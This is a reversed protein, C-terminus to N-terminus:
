IVNFYDRTKMGTAKLVIALEFGGDESSFFEVDGRLSKVRQRIGALGMSKSQISGKKLGVGDDRYNLTVMDGDNKLDFEVVSAESHKFANNLLEQVIRYVALSQEHELEIRFERADFEVKFLVRKRYYDMLSVLAEVVGTEKLFPPRLFTCTERIQDVVEELGDRVEELESRMEPTIDEELLNEVKRYWVLQEQLASDHLDSSLRAREKEALNFLLRLMWFPTESNQYISQEFEETVGEILRFNEYVISAYHVMTKLWRIEDKNFTTHNVKEDVWLVYISDSQEVMIFALGNGVRFYDLAKHGAGKNLLHSRIMEGPYGEDGSELRLESHSKNLELIAVGHSPMGNRVEEVLRDDLEDRRLISSLDRTFRDLSIQFNAKDGYLRPRVNWKEELYFFLGMLLYILVTIRVWEILTFQGVLILVGVVISTLVFSIISYYRLRSTIFDIDFLRNNVVLYMFFVPLFILSAATIPAPVVGVGLFINPLATLAVFPVFSVALGFMMNQFAPKHITDRFRIYHVVLIVLCLAIEASFLILQTNRLISYYMGMPVFIAISDALIILANVSYLLVVPKKKLITIQFQQFYSYLFHLFSVPVMFLSLGNIFRSLSDTRASAGASLYCFAVAMLFGILILATRDDKKRIYLFLSFAFLLVFVFVPIVLHYLLTSADVGGAYTFTQFEGNRELVIEELDGVVGFKKISRFSTVPEGNIQVLADGPRIDYGSTWGVGEVDEIIWKQEGDVREVNMGAYPENIIIFSLYSVLGIALMSMLLALWGREQIRLM